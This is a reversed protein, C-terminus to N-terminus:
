ATPGLQFLWSVPRIFDEFQDGFLGEFSDMINELAQSQEVSLAAGSGDTITITEGSIAITAFLDGNVLVNLSGSEVDSLAFSGQIQVSHTSQQFQVDVTVTGQATESSFEMVMTASMTFSRSPIEIGYTLTVTETAFTSEFSTTLDLNVIDTGDSVFGDITFSISGVLATASVTYNMFQTEGSVVVIRVVGALDTSEDLLDVYGIETTGPEHTIPNVEYLIFRMGNTPAGTRSENFVYGIDPNYDYTRGRYGDPILVVEAASASYLAGAVREGAAKLQWSEGATVLDWGADSLVSALAPAGQIRSFNGSMSGLSAFVPTDFADEVVQLDAASTTPDFPGDAGPGTSGDDCATLGVALALGLASLRNVNKM